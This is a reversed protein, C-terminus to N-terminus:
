LNQGNPTNQQKNEKVIAREFEEAFESLIEYSTDFYIENDITLTSNTNDTTTSNENTKINKEEDSKKGPIFVTKAKNLNKSSTGIKKLDYYEVSGDPNRLRIFNYKKKSPRGNKRDM